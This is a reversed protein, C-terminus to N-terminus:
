KEEKTLEDLECLIEDFKRIANDRMKQVADRVVHAASISTKDLLAAAIFCSCTITMMYSDSNPVQEFTVLKLLRDRIVGIM